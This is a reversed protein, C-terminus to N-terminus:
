GGHFPCGSDTLFILKRDPQLAKKRSLFTIREAVILMSYKTEGDKEYDKSDIRGEICCLGGKRLNEACVKAPKGFAAIHHWQVEEVGDKITSNSLTFKCHDAKGGAHFEPDNGLRSIIITKNYAKNM